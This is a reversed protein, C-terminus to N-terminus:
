VLYVYHFALLHLVSSRLTAHQSRDVVGENHAQMVSELCFLLEVKHQVISCASLEKEMKRAQLFKRFGCSAEVACFQGQRQVFKVLMYSLIAHASADNNNM